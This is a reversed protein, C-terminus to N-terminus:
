FRYSAQLFIEKPRSLVSYFTNTGFSSGSLPVNAVFGQQQEDTINRMLLALEWTESELSLGVNVRTIEDVTFKPDLNTHANQEDEYSVDVMAALLLGGSLPFTQKLSLFASIEPALRGTKGTYDCLAVGNVVAGDPVQRNYCNGAPFYKFEHDLTAISFSLLTNDSVAWRGDVEIGSVETEPANGVTFGLTGDFQSVQLDDYDTMFAAINLELSDDLFRSKAGVEYASAEEEEFEFSSVVNARTDFGGAKFGETYSAYLSTNPSVDWQLNVVPTFISETRSGTLNHGTFQENDIAFVATYLIPAVPSTSISGLDAATVNIVRSGDKDERTFRGGVTFRWDPSINWTAQSFIAWSSSETEFDRTASTGLLPVLAGGALLRLLSDSPVRIGDRFELENKQLYIGALWDVTEGGPSSFRFEQSIQDFKENFPVDFVPAATLDCECLDEYEYGVFGTTSTLTIGGVQTQYNLTVNYFENDSSDNTNGQRVNNQEADTIGEPYGFVGLIQSYTLNPLPSGPLTPEDLTIEWQKGVREFEAIEAKLNFDSTDNVQWRLSARVAFEDRQPEDQTLYTNELWGDEEYYRAVLRGSVSDSMPGSVMATIEKIDSEIGYKATLSGEFQDTPKATSINLAGAISNKGFLTGQPGRLVEVRDLDLFPLRMLQQRGYYIGDVYQGVSMEFGQNNTSGIGRIFVQTSLGTVTMNLNPVMKQLDEVVFVGSGQLQEGTLAVVSIPVDKLTEVRKQSTVLIEELQAASVTLSGLAAIFLTLGRIQTTLGAHSKTM